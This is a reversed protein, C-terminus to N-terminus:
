YFVRSNPTLRYDISLEMNLLVGTYGSITTQPSTGINEPCGHVHDCADNSCKPFCFGGCKPGFSGFPCPTRCFPGFYGPECM